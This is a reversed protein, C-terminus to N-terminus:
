KPYSVWSSVTTFSAIKWSFWSSITITLSMVTCERHSCWRRGKIPVTVQRSPVCLGCVSIIMYTGNYIFIPYIGEWSTIPNDLSALIASMNLWLSWTWSLNVLCTALANISTKFGFPTATVIFAWCIHMTNMDKEHRKIKDSNDKTTINWLTHTSSILGSGTGYCRTHKPYKSAIGLSSFLKKM